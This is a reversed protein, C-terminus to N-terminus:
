ASRAGTDSRLEAAKAVDLVHLLQHEFRYVETLVERVGHPVTDPIEAALSPDAEVVDGIEDVLFSV